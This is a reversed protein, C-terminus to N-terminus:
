DGIGRPNDPLAGTLTHLNLLHELNEINRATDEILTKVVRQAARRMVLNEPNLQIAYFGQQPLSRQREFGNCLHGSEIIGIVQIHGKLPLDPHRRPLKTPLPIPFSHPLLWIGFELM